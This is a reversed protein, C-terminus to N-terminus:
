VAFVEVAIVHSRTEESFYMETFPVLPIYPSLLFALPAWHSFVGKGSVNLRDGAVLNCHIGLPSEARERRGRHVLRPSIRLIETKSYKLLIRLSGTSEPRWDTSAVVAVALHVM